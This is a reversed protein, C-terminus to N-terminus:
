RGLAALIQADLERGEKTKYSRMVSRAPDTTSVAAPKNLLLPLDAEEQANALSEAYACSLAICVQLSNRVANPHIYHTQM